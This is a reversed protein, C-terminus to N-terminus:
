TFCTTLTIIVLEAYDFNDDMQGGIPLYVLVETCLNRKAAKGGESEDDGSIDEEDGTDSEDNFQKEFMNDFEKDNEDETDCYEIPVCEM